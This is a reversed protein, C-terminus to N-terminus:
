MVEKRWSATGRLLWRRVRQGHRRYWARLWLAQSGALLAIVVAADLVPGAGHGAALERASRVLLTVIVPVTV